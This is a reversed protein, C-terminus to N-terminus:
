LDGSCDTAEEKAPDRQQVQCKVAAKAQAMGKSTYPYEKKGVTPM